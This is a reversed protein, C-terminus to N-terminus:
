NGKYKKNLLLLGMLILTTLSMLPITIYGLGVLYQQTCPAVLSCINSPKASYYIYNHYLSILAGISILGLSYDIIYNEKKFLALGLLIVQPYIFIRQFWCLDCPIFKAIESYYLSGGTAILAVIFAFLISKNIIVDFLRFKNNKYFILRILLLLSIIQGGLVLVSLVSNIQNILM